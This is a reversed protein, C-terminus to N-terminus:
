RVWLQFQVLAVAIALSWEDAVSVPRGEMHVEGEIDEDSGSSWIDAMDIQATAPAPQM